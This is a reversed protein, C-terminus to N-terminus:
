DRLEEVKVYKKYRGNCKNEKLLMIDDQSLISAIKKEIKGNIHRM